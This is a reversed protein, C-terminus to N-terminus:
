VPWSLCQSLIVCEAWLHRIWSSGLRPTQSWWRGGRQMVVSSNSVAPISTSTPTDQFLNQTAVFGSCSISLLVKGVIPICLGSDLCALSKAPPNTKGFFM